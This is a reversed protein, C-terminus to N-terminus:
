QIIGVKEPEIYAQGSTTLRVTGSVQIVRNTDAKSGPNLGLGVGERALVYIAACLDRIVWDSRTVPSPGQAEALLDWGRYYGILTVKKGAFSQPSAIIDKILNTFDTKYALCEVAGASTPSPISATPKNYPIPTEQPLVVCASLSTLLVIMWGISLFLDQTFTKKM